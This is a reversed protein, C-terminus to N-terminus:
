GDILPKMYEYAQRAVLYAEVDRRNFGIEMSLYGDYGAEKLADVLGM